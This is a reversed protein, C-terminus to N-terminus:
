GHLPIRKLVEKINRHYFVDLYFFALFECIEFDHWLQENDNTMLNWGELLQTELYSFRSQM